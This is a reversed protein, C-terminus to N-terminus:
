LVEYCREDEFAERSDKEKECDVCKFVHGSPIEDSWPPFDLDIRRYTTKKEVRHDGVGWLKPGSFLFGFM